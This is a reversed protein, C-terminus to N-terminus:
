KVHWGKVAAGALVTRLTVPKVVPAFIEGFDVKEKQQFGKAVLRSKFRELAGDAGSKVKFVWKSSIPRRGKPLDVLEWTGNEILSNFEADMAAKWEEKQPGSLAEEVTAQKPGGLRSYKLRSPAAAVRKKRNAIQQGHPSAGRQVSRKTVKATATPEPQSPSDVCASEDELGEEAAPGSVQQEGGGSHDSTLESGPLDELHLQVEELTIVHRVAEPWFKYPMGAAGLLSKSAEGITRIAREAIGNLRMAQREVMPLWDEKIAAAADSKKSLPRAWTFCSWEDVMTLFYLVGGTGETRMPGVLDMHVVELPAKASGEARPFPFRAFKNQMCAECSGYHAGDRQLQLGHVCKEKHMVKLTSVAVHALRRHWTEWDAQGSTASAKVAASGGILEEGQVGQQEEKTVSEEMSAAAAAKGSKQWPLVPIQWM